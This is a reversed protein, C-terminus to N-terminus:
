RVVFRRRQADWHLRKQHRKWFEDITQLMHARDQASWRAEFLFRRDVLEKLLETATERVSAQKHRLKQIFLGVAPAGAKGFEYLVA